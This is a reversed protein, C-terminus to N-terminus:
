SSLLCSCSKCVSTVRSESVWRLGCSLNYITTYLAFPLIKLLMSYTHCVQHFAL